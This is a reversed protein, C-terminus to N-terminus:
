AKIALMTKKFSEFNKCEVLKNINEENSFLLILAEYLEKFLCSEDKNIAILLVINVISDSWIIGKPNIMIALGTCNAKMATSHPIAIKGFATTAVEERKLVNDLFYHNVNGNSELSKYLIEIAQMKDLNRKEYYFCKEKFFTDFYQYLLSLKKNDNADQIKAFVEKINIAKKLPPLIIINNYENKLPITSFCIDYQKTDSIENEFSFVDCINIQSNFNELLFNYIQIKSNHYDPCVLACRLKAALDNKQEIEAGVHMAIYGIEDKSICISYERSLIESIFVACDFLIPYNNQISDCLPNYLCSGNQSRQIMNKFHLALQLSLSEINLDLNYQKNVARLVKITMNYVEEGVSNIIINKTDQSNIIPNINVIILDNIVDLYQNPIDINMKEKIKYKINISIAELDKTPTFRSPKNIGIIDNLMISLHLTINMCSFDNLYYKNEKFSALVIDYLVQVNVKQFIDQIFKLDIIHGKSEDHIIHSIFKHIDNENGDIYLKEDKTFFAINYKKLEINMKSILQKISSYSICFQDALDYIDLFSQHEIFLKHIIYSSREAYTQPIDQTIKGFTVNRNFIYGHSNSLILENHTKNIKNVYNKISRSSVNLKSALDKSSLTSNSKKLIDLLEKHKTKM